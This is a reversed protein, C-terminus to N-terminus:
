PPSDVPGRLFVADDYRLMTVGAEWDVPVRTASRSHSELMATILDAGAAHSLPYGGGFRPNIEIVVAQDSEADFFMQLNAVGYMGPLSMAVREALDEVKANRVTVGKSVEGARTELRHRPVAGLFQGDAGVGFDVTLEIGPARSQVIFDRALDAPITDATLGLMVGISSSGSRPKAVLPGELARCAPDGAQHTAVTPFDHTVLWSHLDWKDFGLQATRVSPAWVDVGHQAFVDRSRAFVEIEPDITPIVVDIDHRVAIDLVADVFEAADVRPVLELRDALHGAASLPSMDIATVEGGAPQAISKLIEVLAGRRGASSVLFNTM